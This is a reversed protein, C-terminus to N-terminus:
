KGKFLRWHAAAGAVKEIVVQTASPQLPKKVPTMSFSSSSAGGVVVAAICIVVAVAIGIVLVWTRYSANKMVTEM